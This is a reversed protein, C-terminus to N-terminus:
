FGTRPDRFQPSQNLLGIAIVVFQVLGRDAIAIIIKPLFLQKRKLVVKRLEGACIRRNTIDRAVDGLTKGLDTVIRRHLRKILRMGKVLESGEIFEDGLRNGTKGIEHFRLYIPNRQREPIRTASKHTRSCTSVSGDAIINGRIHHRNRRNRLRERLGRWGFQLDAALCIHGSVSKHQQVFLKRGLTPLLESIGPVGTRSRQLLKIGPDGGFPGEIDDNVIGTAYAALAKGRVALHNRRERLPTKRNRRPRPETVIDVLHERRDIFEPPQAMGETKLDIARHDLDVLPPKVLKQPRGSMPRAPRAREFISRLTCLGHHLGNRHLDTTSTNESGHRLKTRSFEGAAHNRTRCQMVGILDRTLVHSNSVM